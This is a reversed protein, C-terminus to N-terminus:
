IAYTGFPVNSYSMLIEYSFSFETVKTRL